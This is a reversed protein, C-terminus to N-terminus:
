QSVVCLATEKLLALSCLADRASEALTNVAGAHVEAPAWHQRRIRAEAERIHDRYNAEVLNMLTLNQEVEITNM